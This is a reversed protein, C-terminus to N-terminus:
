GMHRKWKAFARLQWVPRSRILAAFMPGFKNWWYRVTERSMDIGREQLLDEVNQFSLPFRIYLVVALHIFQPSTKFYKFSTPRTM